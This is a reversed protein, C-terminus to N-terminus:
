SEQKASKPILELTAATAGGGGFEVVGLDAGGLDASGGDAETADGHPASGDPRWAAPLIARFGSLRGIDEAWHRAMRGQLWSAHVVHDRGLAVGLEQASFCGVVSPSAGGSCAKALRYLRGRADQSGDAAEVLGFTGHKRLSEEVQRFGVALAGARKGLGLRALARQALMREIQDELDHPAIVGAKLGRAFAGKKRALALSKRDSRIWVGRGPLRAALDPTLAGDPSAVFRILM